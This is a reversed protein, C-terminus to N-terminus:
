SVCAAEISDRIIELALTSDAGGGTGASACPFSFKRAEFRVSHHRLASYSIPYGTHEPSVEGFRHSCRM